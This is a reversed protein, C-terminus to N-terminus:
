AIFCLRFCGRVTQVRKSIGDRGRGAWHRNWLGGPRDGVPDTQPTNDLSRRKVNDLCMQDYGIIDGIGFANYADKKKLVNFSAAPSPKGDAGVIEDGSSGGRCAMEWQAETPLDIAEIGTRKRLIGLFSRGSVKSDKPWNTYQQGGRLESYEGLAPRIIRWRKRNDYWLPRFRTEGDPGLIKGAQECTLLHVSIFYDKRLTVEHPPNTKEHKGGGMVFKGAKIRVFVLKDADRSRVTELPLEDLFEVPYKKAKHGGSIDIVCYRPPREEPEPPTRLVASTRKVIKLRPCGVFSNESVSVLSEPIEVEELKRCGAFEGGRASYYVGTIAGGEVFFNCGDPIRVFRLNSCGWFARESIGHLTDPLNIFRLSECKAFAYKSIWEAGPLEVYELNRCCDFLGPSITKLTSPLICRRVALGRFACSPLETVGEEVVIEDIPGMRKIRNKVCYADRRSVTLSAGRPADSPVFAGSDVLAECHDFASVDTGAAASEPVCAAKLSDCDAFAHDGISTLTPPFDIKELAACGRFAAAGIKELGSPWSVSVLSTCDRFAGDPIMRAASVTLDVRTINSNRAFLVEGFDIGAPFVVERKGGACWHVAANMTKDILFGNEFRFKANEPAIEMDTLSRCGSFATEDLCSVSAPIKVSALKPCFAFAGGSVHEIGYGIEVRQLNRCKSFAGSWIYKISGPIFVSAIATGCFCEDRMIKLGKPLVVDALAKCDRFAGSGVNNLASPLHVAKLSACEEFAFDHIARVGSMGVVDELSSCGSFAYEGIRKVSSPIEISRLTTRRSFARRDIGTVGPAIVVDVLNKGTCDAKTLDKGAKGIVVKGPSAQTKKKTKM